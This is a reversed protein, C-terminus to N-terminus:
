RITITPATTAANPTTTGPQRTQQQPPPPTQPTTVQVPRPKGITLRIARSGDIKAVALSTYSGPKSRLTVALRGPQRVVAVTLGQLTTPAGARSRIGGQWIRVSARGDGIARDTVVVSTRDLTGGALRVTAVIRQRNARLTPELATLPRSPTELAPLRQSRLLKGTRSSLRTVTWDGASIVYVDSRPSPSEPPGAVAVPHHGVAVLRPKGASSATDLIAVQDRAYLTAVLLGNTPVIWIDSPTAPLAITRLLKRTTLDVVAVGREVPVYLRQLFGVLRGHPNTGVRIPRSGGLTAAPFIEVTGARGNAAFIRGPVAGMGSPVYPLARCRPRSVSCLRASGTGTSRVAFLSGGAAVVDAARPFAESSISALDDGALRTLTDRDGVVVTDGSVGIGQPGAPDAANAGPRLTAGALRVVHGSAAALYVSSSTVALRAHERPAPQPEAAVVRSRTSATTSTTESGSKVLAVAAGGAGLAGLAAAVWLLRARTLRPPQAPAAAGEDDGLRGPSLPVTAKPRAAVGDPAEDVLPGSSLGTPLSATGAPAVPDTSAVRVDEPEGAPEAEVVPELGSSAASRGVTPAAAGHGADATGEVARRLTRDDPLTPLPDPRPEIDARPSTIEGLATPPPALEDAPTFVAPTLPDATEPDPPRDLLRAERRWASGLLRIVIEEFRDWAVQADAPRAAPDKELLWEIWSALEPDLDPEVSRPSPPPDNVHHLLIALPTEVEHFPAQGVIMEYAMVGVSYLDTAPGIDKVLAQEPAMYTPTGVATRTDTRTRFQGSTLVANYAKAIGFDAIKVGGELTVLVNEPKLDRHVIGRSGAHMLGALLGQLVGAIQALTMKTVWPRLSGRELYEMSIYPVGDHEFFDHVTVINTHNLAGALRSERVFREAFARDSAFSAALEKLAVSRDLDTQRALYVFGMGGRGIERLIEYRGVKRLILPM